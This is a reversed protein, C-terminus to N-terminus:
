MKQLYSLDASDSKHTALLLSPQEQLYRKLAHLRRTIPSPKKGEKM